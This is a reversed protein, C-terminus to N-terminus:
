CLTQIKGKITSKPCLGILTDVLRGQRFFLLTPIATIQFKEATKMNEDVNLKGFAVKDSLEGALEEIIPSLMRCPGCWPAWCDVVLASSNMVTEDFNGDTVVKVKPENSM